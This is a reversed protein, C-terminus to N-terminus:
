ILNHLYASCSSEHWSGMVGTATLPVVAGCEECCEPEDDIQVPKAVVVQTVKGTKTEVPAELDLLLRQAEAEECKERLRKLDDVKALDRVDHHPNFIRKNNYRFGEMLEHRVVLELLLWLTKVVSSEEAGEWIIEKRGEGRGVVGTFTDPREFSVWVLWGIRKVEQGDERYSAAITREHFKWSFNLVTNVLTVKNFVRELDTRTNVIM